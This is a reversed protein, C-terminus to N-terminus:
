ILNDFFKDQVMKVALATDADLVGNEFLSRSLLGKRNGANIYFACEECADWEPLFVMNDIQFQKCHYVKMPHEHSCCFDCIEDEPKESKALTAQTRGQDDIYYRPEM